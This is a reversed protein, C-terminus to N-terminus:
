TRLSYIIRLSVFPGADVRDLIASALDDKRLETVIAQTRPDPCAMIAGLLSEVQRLRQEIAHIYGPPPGPKHIPGPSSMLIRKVTVAFSRRNVKFRANKSHSETLPM